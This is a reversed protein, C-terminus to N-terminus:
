QSMVMPYKSNSEIVGVQKSVIFGQANAVASSFASGTSSAFIRLRTGRLACISFLQAKQLLSLPEAGGGSVAEVGVLIEHPTYVPSANGLVDYALSWQIPKVLVQAAASGAVTPTSGVAIVPHLTSGDGLSANTTTDGVAVYTIATTLGMRLTIEEALNKAIEQAKFSTQM